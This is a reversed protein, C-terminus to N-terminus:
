VARKLRGLKVLNNYPNKNKKFFPLSLYVLIFIDKSRGDRVHVIVGVHSTWLGVCTLNGREQRWLVETIPFLSSQHAM